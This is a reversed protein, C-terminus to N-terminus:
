NWKKFVKILAYFITLVILQIIM